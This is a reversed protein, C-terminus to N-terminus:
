SWPPSKSCYKKKKSQKAKITRKCDISLVSIEVYSLIEPSDAATEDNIVTDALNIETRNQKYKQQDSCRQVWVLITRM